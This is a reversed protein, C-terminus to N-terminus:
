LFVVQLLKDSVNAVRKSAFSLDDEVRRLMHSVEEPIDEFETTLNLTVDM